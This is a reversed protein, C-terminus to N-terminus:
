RSFFRSNFENIFNLDLRSPKNNGSYFFNIKIIEKNNKSWIAHPAGCLECCSRNTTYNNKLEYHKILYSISKNSRISSRIVTEIYEQATLIKSNINSADFIYKNCNLCIPIDVM